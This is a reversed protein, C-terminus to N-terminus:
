LLCHQLASCNSAVATGAIFAVVLSAFKSSRAKGKM